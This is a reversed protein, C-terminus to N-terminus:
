KESTLDVVECVGASCSLEKGNVINSDDQEYLALMQWHISPSQRVLENYEDETIEQYPAQQYVHGASPLFSIGSVEDFHEYVWDGVNDWQDARVNITISPKHECWHRQYVLWLNLHEIETIDERTIADHPAAIPFSFVDSVDPKMLDPECPVGSDKLFQGLPDKRDARVTRIYYKSHWPHIGSSTGTLQSSNGEPKICTIAASAPIGIEAALEQNQVRATNRLVDLWNATEELGLRGNLAAHGFIGSLSVGLLREEETNEKWKNNIYGFNTICSQWTGIITALEVKAQLEQLTEDGKVPVSTLNCFQYPRLLIEGCNGTLSHAIQFCHKEDFVTVDWVPAHRDAELVKMVELGDTSDLKTVIVYHESVWRKATQVGFFGLLECVDKALQEHLDISENGDFLNDLIGHRFDDSFDKEWVAYPLRNERCGFEKIESEALDALGLIYNAVEQGKRYNQKWGEYLKDYKNIVIKDGPKLEDTRKTEGSTLPWKHEKTGEYYHGGALQIRYIPASESSLWCAALSVSGDYNRVYFDRDQLEQIEMIGQTTYVRTGAVLSPNTGYDIEYSRRGYKAAIKKSAERNFIGREGSGSRVLIDWERDFDERSPTTDYVASNNAMSREANTEWFTGMKSEAMEQDSLDSLSILASRRVSGAIVVEGIKCMIDHAEVPKLKRGQARKFTAIVFDFLRQLPGPGSARGGFTKLRVGAPRVQSFDFCPIHGIYLYQVLERLSAAWGERSDPVVIKIALSADLKPVVPLKNVYQSEVSFGVGTGCMLIFMAEDWAVISDVPIFSCNYAAVNTSQMAPGATMLARMSPLVDMNIIGARVKDYQEQPIEYNNNEKLYDRMYQMYRDITEVWTERRGESENWRAYRSIHIFNQYANTIYGSDSVLKTM